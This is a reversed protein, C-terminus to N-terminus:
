YVIKWQITLLPPNHHLYLSHINTHFYQVPNTLPLFCLLAMLCDAMQWLISYLTWSIARTVRETETSSLLSIFLTHPPQDSYRLPFLSLSSDRSVAWCHCRATVSLDSM